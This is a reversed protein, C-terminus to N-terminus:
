KIEVHIHDDHRVAKCGHYRLRSDGIDLRNKLHPEILIKQVEKQALISSILQKTHSNSYLLSRNKKGFTLYKPFDYQFYGASKCKSIQDFEKKNPGEFVGYGSNSKKKNTLKGDATIYMLSIDIKKGDDHSRHPLLPFGDWFPFNADLYKIEIHSEELLDATTHLVQNLDFDVYNRNLLDTMLFAPKINKTRQIKERGFLPAVLPIIALTFILYLPLFIVWVNPKTKKTWITRIMLSLLLIVGGTQSIITLIIVLTTFGLIKFGNKM